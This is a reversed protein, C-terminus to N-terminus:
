KIPKGDVISEGFEALGVQNRDKPKMQADVTKNNSQKLEELDEEYFELPLKMLIQTIGDRGTRRIMEANRVELASSIEGHRNNELMGQEKPTVFEYGRDLLTEINLPDQPNNDAAWRLHYGEMKRVALPGGDNELLKRRAKKKPRENTSNTM